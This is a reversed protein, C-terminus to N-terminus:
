GARGPTATIPTREGRLYRVTDAADFILSFGDVLIVALIWYGLAGNLGIDGLRVALWPLMPVWFIHGIGLLRVFGKTGFISAMVVFGAIAAAIVVKAEIAAIFHIAGFVNVAVMITV